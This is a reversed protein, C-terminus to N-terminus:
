VDGELVSLPHVDAALKLAAIGHIQQWHKAYAAKCQQEGHVDQDELKTLAQGTVYGRHLREGVQFDFEVRPFDKDYHPQPDCRDM